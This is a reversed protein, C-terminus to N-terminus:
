EAARATYIGYQFFAWTFNEHEEVAFAWSEVADNWRITRGLPALTRILAAVEDRDTTTWVNTWEGHVYQTTVVADNVTNIAAIRRTYANM